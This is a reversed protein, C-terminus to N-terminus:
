YKNLVKNQLYFRFDSHSISIKYNPILYKCSASSTTLTNFRSKRNFKCGSNSNLPIEQLACLLSHAQLSM